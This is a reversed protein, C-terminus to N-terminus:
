SFNLLVKNSVRFGFGQYCKIWFDDLFVSLIIIGIDSLWSVRQWLRQAMVEVRNGWPNILHSWFEELCFASDSGPPSEWGDIRKSHAQTNQAKQQARQAEISELKRLPKAPLLSSPCSNSFQKAFIPMENLATMSELKCFKSCKWEIFQFTNPFKQRIILLHRGRRCILNSM